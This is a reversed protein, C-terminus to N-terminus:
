GSVPGEYVREMSAWWEDEGAEPVKEQFTRMLDEWQRCRPHNEMHKAYGREPAFGDVTELYMFLRNGLLFIQMSTVGIAELSAEVEPWVQRHYEKYKEIMKPDNKLLLTMGFSKM